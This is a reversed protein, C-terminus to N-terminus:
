SLSLNLNLNLNPHRRKAPQVVAKPTPEAVPASTDEVAEVFADALTNLALGSQTSTITDTRDGSENVLGEFFLESFISLANVDSLSSSRVVELTSREGDIM